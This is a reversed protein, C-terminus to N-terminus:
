KELDKLFKNWKRIESKVFKILEEKNMNVACNKNHVLGKEPFYKKLENYQCTCKEM